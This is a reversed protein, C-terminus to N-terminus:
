EVGQRSVDVGKEIAYGTGGEGDCWHPSAITLEYQCPLPEAAEVLALLEEEGKKCRFTVKTRRDGFGECTNGGEYLQAGTGPEWRSFFGAHHSQRNLVQRVSRLFCVEFTAGSTADDLYHCRGALSRQQASLSALARAPPSAPSPAPPAPARVSLTPMTPTAFSSNTSSYIRYGFCALLALIIARLGAGPGGVGAM